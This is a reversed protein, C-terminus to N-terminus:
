DKNIDMIEERKIYGGFIKVRLIKNWAGIMGKERRRAKNKYYLFEVYLQSFIYHFQTLKLAFSTGTVM